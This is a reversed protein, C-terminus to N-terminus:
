HRELAAALQLLFRDVEAEDYGQGIRVTRFASERVDRATMPPAYGRLGAVVRDLFADVDRVDYGARVGSSAFKANQIWNILWGPHVRPRRPRSGIPAAAQLERIAEQLLDDVARQDYGRLVIDFKTRRVDDATLGWRGYRLTATIRELLTDVQTRDYGRLAVPLRTRAQTEL